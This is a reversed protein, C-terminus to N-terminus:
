QMDGENEDILYFLERRMLVWSYNCTVFRNKNIIRNVRLRMNHLGPHGPDRELARQVIRRAKSTSDRGAKTAFPRFMGSEIMDVVLELSDPEFLLERKLSSDETKIEDRPQWREASPNDLVLMYIVFLALLPIKIISVELM